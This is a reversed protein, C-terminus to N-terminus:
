NQGEQPVNLLGAMGVGMLPLKNKVVLDLVQDKTLGLAQATVDIREDLIRPISKPASRLNTNAGSSFWALSQAEAPTVGLKEGVREYLDQFVSYEVREKKKNKTREILGDQIGHKKNAIRGPDSMFGIPDDLYMQYGKDGDADSKFWNRSISGPALENQAVLAGRIAHSDATVTKLNGQAGGM